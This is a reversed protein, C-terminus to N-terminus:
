VVFPADAAEKADAKPAGVCVGMGLLVSLLPLRYKVVFM